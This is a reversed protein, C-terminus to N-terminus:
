LCQEVASRVEEVTDEALRKRLDKVDKPSMKLTRLVSKNYRGKETPLCGLGLDKCLNNALHLLCALEGPTSGPNHHQGVAEALEKGVNANMLLLQGLREHNASDGLRQEARRFSGETKPMQDVLRSFWDWFFFGLVLKGADHLLAGVWYDNFEIRRDLSLMKNAYLKDAIIACGVSHEWFRRLDFDSQEPRVLSNVLKIQQAIAGVKKLGLRVIIDSLTWNDRQVTGAFVPSRVVQMLKMVISPDTSLVEELEETTTKPDNVMWMIRMVIEPLTPLTNINKLRREVQQQLVPYPIREIDRLLDGVSNADLAERVVDHLSDETQSFAKQWACFFINNLGMCAQRQVALRAEPLIMFVPVQGDRSLQAIAAPDRSEQSQVVFVCGFGPDSKQVVQVAREMEPVTLAAFGYQYNLIMNLFRALVQQPKGPQRVILGREESNAIDQAIM